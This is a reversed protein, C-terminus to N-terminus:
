RNMIFKKRNVGTGTRRCVNKEVEMPAWIGDTGSFGNATQPQRLNLTSEIPLKLDLWWESTEYQFQSFSTGKRCMLTYLKHEIETVGHSM